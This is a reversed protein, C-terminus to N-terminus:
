ILPQSGAKFVAPGASKGCRLEAIPGAVEDKTPPDDLEMHLPRPPIQEIVSPDISSPRNLLQEFHQSWRQNIAENDSLLEGQLNRIPATSRQPPGYVERLSSAFFKANKSDAYGQIEEADKIWWEYKMSRLQKQVERILRHFKDRRSDSQIVSLWNKHAAYKEALLSRILFDNDDFWDQHHRKLIDITEKAATDVENRLKAWNEETQGKTFDVQELRKSLENQLAAIVDPLCVTMSIWSMGLSDM